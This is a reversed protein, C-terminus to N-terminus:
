GGAGVRRLDDPLGIGPFNLDGRAVAESEVRVAEAYMPHKREKEICEPCCTDTNFYSMSSGILEASCRDCFQKM